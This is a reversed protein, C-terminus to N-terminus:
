DLGASKATRAAPAGPTKKKVVKSVPSLEIEDVIVEPRAQLAFVVARAVDEPGLANDDAEGPEFGLGDFFPTRVMGPHIQTVRVGSRAVEQRLAQAFGRLGFKSACYVSGRRAGTLAAESGVFVLHGRGRRKLVPVFARCLFLNAVLNVDILSRMQEYSLEELGGFLGQGAALVLAAVDDRERALEDARAPLADLDALDLRVPEFSGGDPSEAPMVERRSIGLVSYGATRLSDTVARGIGSSAGTVLVHDGPLLSM